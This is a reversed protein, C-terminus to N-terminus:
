VVKGRKFDILSQYYEEWSDLMTMREEYTKEVLMADKICDYGRAEAWEECAFKRDLYFERWPCGVCETNERIALRNCYVECAPCNSRMHGLMLNEEYKIRIAKVVLLKTEISTRITNNIIKDMIVEKKKNM